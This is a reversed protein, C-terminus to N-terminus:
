CGWMGGMCDCTGGQGDPCTVGDVTCPTGDAPPTAPCQGGDAGGFTVCTWQRGADRGGRACDCAASAYICTQRMACQEGDMPAQAPCAGGDDAPNGSGGMANTGGNGSSM